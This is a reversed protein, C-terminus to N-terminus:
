TIGGVTGTFTPDALPAKLALQNEVTTAYKADDNLAAALENLTNLVTPANDVINSITLDVTAKDYVDAANAKLALATDVETSSYSTAVDRKLALATDVQSSSYSTAVDRKLALATDVEASSYSTAVDRKLALSTDVESKTYTTAQAAKLALATDVEGKTYTTAQDAKLALQGDVYTAYDPDNAISNAIKGLTDLTEPALGVVGERIDVYRKVVPDWTRVSDAEINNLNSTADSM